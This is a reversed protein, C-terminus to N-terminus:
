EATGTVGPMAINAPNSLSALQKRLSNLQDQTQKIQDQTSKKQAALTKLQQAKMQAVAAPNAAAAAPAPAVGPTVPPVVEEDVQQGVIDAYQDMGLTTGAASMAVLREAVQHLDLDSEADERAYEMIRILLPVDLQITDAPNDQSESTESHWADQASDQSSHWADQASDQSSHWADEEAVGQKPAVDASTGFNVKLKVQKWLPNKPDMRKQLLNIASLRHAGDNLQGDIVTLPPLNAVTQPNKQLYRAYEIVQKTVNWSYDKADWDDVVNNVYPIGKVSSLIQDLTMAKTQIKANLNFQKAKGSSEGPQPFGEAVGQQDYPIGILTNTYSGRVSQVRNDKIKFPIGAQTLTDQVLKQDQPDLQDSKIVLMTKKAQLTTHASLQKRLQQVVQLTEPSVRAQDLGEAVDQKFEAFERFLDRRVAAEPRNLEQELERLLSGTSESAGVLRGAFPHRGDKRPKAKETGRVQDGPKQGVAQGAFQDMKELLNRINSM